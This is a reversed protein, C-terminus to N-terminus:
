PNEKGTFPNGKGLSPIGMGRLAGFIQGVGFSKGFDGQGKGKLFPALGVKRFLGYKEHFTQYEKTGL